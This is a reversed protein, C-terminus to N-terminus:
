AIVRVGVGQARLLAIEERETFSLYRGSPEALGIPSMGGGDKFWRSAVRVSVGCERGAGATQWGQGILRWFRRAVERRYAAPRGVSGVPPRGARDSRRGREQQEMAVGRIM